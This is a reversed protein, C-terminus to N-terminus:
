DEKLGVIGLITLGLGGAVTIYGISEYPNHCELQYNNGSDSVCVKNSVVISGLYISLLGGGILVWDSAHSRKPKDPPNEKPVAESPVAPGPKPSLYPPRPPEDLGAVQLIGYPAYESFGGQWDPLLSYSQRAPEALVPASSGIIMSVATARVLPSSILKQLIEELM